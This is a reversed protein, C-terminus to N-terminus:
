MLDAPRGPGPPRNATLSAAIKRLLALAEDLNATDHDAAASVV